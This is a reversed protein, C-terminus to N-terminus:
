SDDEWSDYYFFYISNRTFFEFPWSRSGNLVSRSCGAGVFLMQDGIDDVRVMEGREEDVRHVTFALEDRSSRMVRSGDLAVELLDGCSSEVLYYTFSSTPAKYDHRTPVAVRPPAAHNNSVDFAVVEGDKNICYLEGKHFILDRLGTGM